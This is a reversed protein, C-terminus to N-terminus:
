RRETPLTLLGCCSRLGDPEIRAAPTDFRILKSTSKAPCWYVFVTCERDLMASQLANRSSLVLQGGECVFYREKKPSLGPREDGVLEGGTLETVHVKWL